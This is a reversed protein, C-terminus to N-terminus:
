LQRRRARITDEVAEEKRRVLEDVFTEPLRKQKIFRNAIRIWFGNWEQLVLCYKEKAVFWPELITKMLRKRNRSRVMGSAIDQELAGIKGDCVAQVRLLENRADKRQRLLSQSIPLIASDNLVFSALQKWCADWKRKTTSYFDRYEQMQTELRTMERPAELVRRAAFGLQSRNVKLVNGM